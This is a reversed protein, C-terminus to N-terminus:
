KSLATAYVYIDDNLEGPSELHDEMAGPMRLVRGHITVTDGVGVRPANDHAPLVFVHGERSEGARVFYGGDPDAGAIRVGQLSVSRGVLDEDGQVLASLDGIPAATPEGAASGSTGVAGATGRTRDASTRGDRSAAGAAPAAAGSTGTPPPLEIVMTRHDDGGVIRTARLVPKRSLEAEVDGGDDLWGWEREVSARLFAEVTGSVTVRDDERVAAALTTPMFVLIEGDLDAWNPEDITFLRPGFVKEVEADVSIFQGIYKTPNDELDDVSVQMGQRDAQVATASARTAADRRGQQWSAWEKLTADDGKWDTREGSASITRLVGGQLDSDPVDISLVVTKSREAIDRAQREPYVFEHGYSSAAPFWSKIAVPSGPSTPNFRVMIDDSSQPRKVPVAQTTTILRSESEDFVQVLHRNGRIDALTFVYTGPPLTANPVMVPESFTMITKDNWQDAHSPVAALAVFALAALPPAWRFTM